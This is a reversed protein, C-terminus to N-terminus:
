WELVMSVHCGVRAIAIGAHLLLTFQGYSTCLLQLGICFALTQHPCWVTQPSRVQTRNHEQTQLSFLQQYEQNRQLAWQTHTPKRENRELLQGDSAKWLASSPSHVTNDGGDETHSGSKRNESHEIYLPQAAATAAARKLPCNGNSLPDQRM